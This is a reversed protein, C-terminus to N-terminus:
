SDRCNLKKTSNKAPDMIMLNTVYAQLCENRCTLWTMNSVMVKAIVMIIMSMIMVLM